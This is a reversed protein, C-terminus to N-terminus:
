ILNIDALITNPSLLCDANRINIEIPTFMVAELNGQTKGAVIGAENRALNAHFYM